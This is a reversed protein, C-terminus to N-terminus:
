NTRLKELALKVCVEEFQAPTLDGPVAIAKEILDPWDCLTKNALQKRNANSIHGLHLAVDIRGPRTPVTLDNEHDTPESVASIAPDLKEPHNTTIVLFVGNKTQKGSIQNLVCDFTLTKHETKPERGVFVAEFDEFVAMCPAAMRSWNSIFEQNSLTSMHFIYLPIGLTEALAQTLKSKGTGPNGSLLWGRRWPIGRIEYWDKLEFWKRADEVAQTVNEDYFLHKFPDHNESFNIDDRSYMLPVDICPDPIQRDSASDVNDGLSSSTTREISGRGKEAGVVDILRFRKQRKQEQVTVSEAYTVADCIIKDLNVLGRIGTLKGSGHYIVVSLGKYFISSSYPPLKFPVLSTNTSGRIKLWAGHYEVANSPLLKWDRRLILRVHNNLSYDISANLILLNSIHAFASKVQQWGTAVIALIGGVALLSPSLEM